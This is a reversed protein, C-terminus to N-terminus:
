YPLLYISAIFWANNSIYMWTSTMCFLVGHWCASFNPCWSAFPTRRNAEESWTQSIPLLHFSLYFVTEMWKRSKLEYSFLAFLLFGTKGFPKLWNRQSIQSVADLKEPLDALKWLDLPLKWGPSKALNLPAEQLRRVQGQVGGAMDLPMKVALIVLDVIFLCPPNGLIILAVGLHITRTLSFEMLNFSKPTGWKQFGGCWYVSRISRNFWSCTKQIKM